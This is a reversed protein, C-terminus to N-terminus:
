GFYFISNMFRQNVFSKIM